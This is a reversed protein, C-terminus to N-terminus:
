LLPFLHKHTENGQVNSRFLYKFVLEIASFNKLLTNKFNLIDSFINVSFNLVYRGIYVIFRFSLNAFNWDTYEIEQLSAGEM